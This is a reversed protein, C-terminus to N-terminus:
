WEWWWCLIQGAVGRMTVHVRSCHLLVFATYMICYDYDVTDITSLLSLKETQGLGLGLNSSINNTKPTDIVFNQKYGNIEQAHETM